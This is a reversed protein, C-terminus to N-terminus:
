KIGGQKKMQPAFRGFLEMALAVRKVDSDTEEVKDLCVNVARDTNLCFLNLSLIVFRWKEEETHQPIDFKDYMRKLTKKSVNFYSAMEDKKDM